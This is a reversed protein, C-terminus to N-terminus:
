KKNVKYVTRIRGTSKKSEAGKSVVRKENLFVTIERGESSGSAADSVRAPNGRLVVSDDAATYQAFDGTARREPQTIVVSDTVVTKALEKNSDLYIDAKGAVIRDSGQRIDVNKEYTVLDSTGQYIMKEASVFVPNKASAKGANKQKVDYISSKVSGEAIMQENKQRLLIKDARVYNNDQWARANGTYVGTEQRHDFAANAATLFVPSNATRFPTAGGTQKQSYYTTSVNGRLFSKENFTDWDIESAKARANSDWVTPEGGRLKLFGDFGSYMIREAIGHRDAESFKARGVADFREVDQSNQSFNATMSNAELTQKPRGGVTPYRVAKANSKAQCSRANNGAFFECDFQAANIVTKYNKDSARLPEVSLEANGKAVATALEKGNERLTTEVSDATLNKDAADPSNNAANLKITTRGKTKLDRLTGDGRFLLNIAEPAFMSFQKYEPSNVPIVKVSSGGATDAKQIAQNEGFVAKIEAASVETRRDPSSQKLFASGAARAFKIKKNPYFDANLADGRVLDGGQVIEASGNLFARGGTQEYIATSARVRTPKADEVTTIEVNEKLDFIDKDKEYVASGAKIKTPQDKNQTTEILVNQFLEIRKLEKEILASARNARTKTWGPRANTPKQFVFVSGNLDIKNIEKNTFFATAQDAKIDTPQRLNGSAEAEPTLYIEVGQELKVIQPEQQVFARGAVLRATKVDASLNNEGEAKHALIEVDKLLDLTKKRVDVVAGFSKGSINERSFAIAEEADAIESAKDYTLQETSVKLKDRTEIKVDGALFLKFVKSDDADPIFVAKSATIKDAAGSNKQDYVELYINELEQHNDKFTTAKDAKIFYQLVGNENERREYGNIVAVVEESLQTPFGKMRFTQNNRAKYFGIGVALITVAFGFVALFRLVVPLRARFNYNRYKPNQKESM